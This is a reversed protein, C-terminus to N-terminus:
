HKGKNFVSYLTSNVGLCQVTDGGIGLTATIFLWTNVLLNERKLWYFKM